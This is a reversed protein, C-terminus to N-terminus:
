ALGQLGDERMLGCRKDPKFTGFHSDVTFIRKGMACKESHEVHFVKWFHRKGAQYVLYFAFVRSVWAWGIM